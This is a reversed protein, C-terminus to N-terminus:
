TDLPSFAGSYLCVLFYILFDVIHQLLMKIQNISKGVIQKGRNVPKKNNLINLSGGPFNPTSVRKPHCTEKASYKKIDKYGTKSSTPPTYNVAWLKQKKKKKTAPISIISCSM